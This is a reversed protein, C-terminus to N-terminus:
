SNKIEKEILQIMEKVTQFMPLVANKDYEFINDYDAKQRWDFLESLLRGYKKDFKGTKVFHQSFKSKAATHSKTQIENLVLLANMAYFLSYYLRNIASNWYENQALLEGAEFTKWATELRYRVYEQRDEVKM